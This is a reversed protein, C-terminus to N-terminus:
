FTKDAVHTLPSANQFLQAYRVLSLIRCVSSVTPVHCNTSKGPLDWSGEESEKVLKAVVVAALMGVAPAAPAVVAGSCCSSLDSGESPPTPRQQIPTTLASRDGGRGAGRCPGLSADLLADVRAAILGAAEAHARRAARRALRVVAPFRRLPPPLGAGPEWGVVSAAAAAAAAAGPSSTATIASLAALAAPPLPDLLGMLIARVAGLCRRVAGHVATSYAAAVETADAASRRPTASAPLDACIESDGPVRIAALDRGLALLEGRIAAAASGGGGGADPAALASPGCARAALAATAARLAAARGAPAEEAPSWGWAELAARAARGRRDLAQWLGPLRVSLFGLDRRRVWRRVAGIGCRATLQVPGCAGGGGSDKLEGGCDAHAVAYTVGHDGGGGSAM